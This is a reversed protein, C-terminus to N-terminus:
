RAAPIDSEPRYTLCHLRKNARYANWASICRYIFEHNSAKRYKYASTPGNVNILFERLLMQPMDKTLREGTKVEEWFLFSEEEDKRYTQFISYVVTARWLHRASTKSPAISAFHYGEKLYRQLLLVGKEKNTAYTTGFEKRHDAATRQDLKAASVIISTLDISWPLGLANAEAKVMDKLSRPKNEFQRFLMSLGAPSLRGYRELSCPVTEKCEVVAYCVHQGDMMVDRGDSRSAICVNGIRFRGDLIKEALEKVYDEKVPRQSEYTNYKLYHKALDPDLEVTRREILNSKLNIM